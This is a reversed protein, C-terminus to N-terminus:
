RADQFYPGSAVLQSWTEGVLKSGSPVTVTSTLIYSGADVFLIKGLSAYLAAQFAATDDTVGDGKAGFDKLHVFDAVARDAYQPKPREFYAGNADMLTSHRRYAGVKAGESFSRGDASGEYVAGLAWHDIRAVSGDLLTKGTTDAVAAAVGSLAVNELVVGTSGSKPKSSPPSIQVVMKVNTFSSDLFSASGVTGSGGSSEPVLKFGVGVNTMTISKWVWGWDRLPAFLSASSTLSTRMQPM